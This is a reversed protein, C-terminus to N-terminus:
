NLQREEQRWIREYPIDPDKAALISNTYDIIIVLLKSNDSLSSLCCVWKEM